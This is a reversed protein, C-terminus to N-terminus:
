HKPLENRTNDSGEGCAEGHKCGACASIMGANEGAADGSKIGFLGRTRVAGGGACLKGNGGGMTSELEVTVVGAGAAPTRLSDSLEVGRAVVDRPEDANSPAVDATALGLKLLLRDLVHGCTRGSPDCGRWCFRGDPVPGIRLISWSTGEAVWLITALGAATVTVVGKADIRTGATAEAV